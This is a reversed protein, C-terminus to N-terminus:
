VLASINPKGHRNQDQGKILFIKAFWILHSYCRLVFIKDRVLFCRASLKERLFYLYSVYVYSMYLMM